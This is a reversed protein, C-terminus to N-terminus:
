KPIGKGYSTKIISTFTIGCNKCLYRFKLSPLPGHRTFNKSKCNPCKFDNKDIIYDVQDRIRHIKNISTKTVLSLSRDKVLLSFERSLKKFHKPSYYDSLPISWLYGYSAFYIGLENIGIKKCDTAPL